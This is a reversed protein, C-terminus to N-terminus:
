RNKPGSGKFYGQKWLWGLQDGERHLAVVDENDSARMIGTFGRQKNLWFVEKPEIANIFDPSHTSVFVQGGRKAYERFEEALEPLLEPHLYNEPEEVCLLPHPNPDYLLTLYGFMKITGDSVYRSMFPDKFSGDKFQLVIRGDATDVASVSEIGPIRQALKDLILQFSDPYNEFIYRTYQAINSGTSSLHESIGTDEVTQASIIQFNSVYWNELMRRFSSIAQFKKFQGLGKIALTDSSDLKQFDREEKFDQKQLEFDSENTIATGEGNMFDLFKFPKGKNGRRYKLTEKSVYPITTGEKIDISLEYTVIPQRKGQIDDNRFKIVFEIPGDSDRTRVERFGGRKALATRVNGSLCDSLFGFVDFLTTKGSGNAGLFVAMNSLDKLEAYKYVKYNKISIQEIRM